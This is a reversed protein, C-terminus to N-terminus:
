LDYRLGLFVNRGPSPYFAPEVSSLSLVGYESYEKDFLNNIDLYATFGKFLYKFKLNFVLYDDQKPFANAFDSEFFRKGVYLANLAMRLPDIPSYVADFTAKQEPVSPVQNGSFQGSRIETHLYAYTARLDVRDFKHGLSVEVGERRTLGEMNENAGFGFPGGTPNFFIENKTDVRFLNMNAYLNDSFYHRLGLEYNDSTQPLLGTDITNSQFNFIEDLVPYRFGDSFSVYAHSKKYFRYNVGLTVLTEHFNTESPTSPEFRYKARDDRYGASLSLGDVPYFEDHVYFGQNKKELTFRGTSPVGFFLLTNVIGEEAKVYDLGLTLNNQFGMIPKQILVQPSAILTDINTDGAFTGGSFSSFALSDRERYSLDIQFLADQAFFVEPKLKVYYDEIDAFDQPHVTAKRSVGAQLESEKLAGPLGTDDQHYGASLSLRALEGLEYGLNTGLDKARTQSNDRYGESTYYRGSLAYSFREHSGSLYADGKYTEYSGLGADVGAGFGKGEKTIINIVGETANDGYLVSGRAGRIIEIRKVRDLPILTWDTGSLDAQNIRRGDVLILTNSQATEGFGRLDVRYSRGNGTVDTVQLGGHMRLLSPVDKAPSNAIEKEEIVSVNAPVPSIAEEYRTATVVVQEMLVETKPNKKPEEAFNMDPLFAVVLAPLLYAWRRMHGYRRERLETQKTYAIVEERGM